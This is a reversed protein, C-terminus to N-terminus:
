PCRRRVSDKGIPDREIMETKTVSVITTAGRLQETSEEKEGLIGTMATVLSRGVLRWTGRFDSGQWTGDRKYTTVVGNQCPGDDQSWSGVIDESQFNAPGLIAPEGKPKEAYDCTRDYYGFPNHGDGTWAVGEAKILRKLYRCGSLVNLNYTAPRANGQRVTIRFDTPHGEGFIPTGIPEGPVSVSVAELRDIEAQSLVINQEWDGILQLPQRSIWILPAPHTTPGNWVIHIWDPKGQGSVDGFQAADENNKFVTHQAPAFTALGFLAVLAGLVVTPRRGTM